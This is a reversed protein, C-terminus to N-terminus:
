FTVACLVGNAHPETSVLNYYWRWTGEYEDRDPVRFIVSGDEDMFGGDGLVCLKWSVKSSLFFFLGKPCHRSSKIEIGNYFLRNFGAYLDSNKDTPVFLNQATSGQLISSYEVQMLDNCLILDPKKGSQVNVEDIVRQMSRLSLTAFLDTTPDVVKHVSQLQPSGTATTRDAGHHTQNSLNAMIGAPERNWGTAVGYKLTSGTPIVVACVVGAPLLSTDIALNFTIFKEDIADVQRPVGVVAYTDMRVLAAQAALVGLTFASGDANTTAGSYQHNINNVKDWVYGIVDGGDFMAKNAANKVDDVLGSMEGDIATVFAGASSKASEILPGSVSFRGYVFRATIILDAYLQSGATPLPVSEDLFQVGTNRGVKVPIIAKKGQWDISGKQFVEIALIENNLQSVIPGLYFEKLIASISTSSLTAGM